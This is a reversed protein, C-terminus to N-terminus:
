PGNERGLSIGALPHWKRCDSSSSELHRRPINGSQGLGLLSLSFM